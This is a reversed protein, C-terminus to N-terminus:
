RMQAPFWVGEPRQDTTLSVGLNHRTGLVPHVIVGFQGYVGIGALAAWLKCQVASTNRLKVGLSRAFEIPHVAVHNQLLASIRIQAYRGDFIFDPTPGLKRDIPTPRIAEIYTNNAQPAMPVSAVIISRCEPWITLPHRKEELHESEARADAVKVDFAGHLIMHAILDHKLGADTTM